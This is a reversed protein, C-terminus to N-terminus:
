GNHEDQNGTTVTNIFKQDSTSSLMLCGAQKMSVVESAIAAILWPSFPGSLGAYNELWHTQETKWESGQEKSAALLEFFSDGWKLSDGIINQTNSAVTQTTFFLNLEDINLPQRLAMPRLLRAHHALKYKRAVDDTVLLLSALSDSWQEAGHRQQVLILEASIEPHQLREELTLYSLQNLVTFTAQVSSEPMYALWSQALQKQLLTLDTSSDTLLIV